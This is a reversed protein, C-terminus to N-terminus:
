ESFGYDAPNYENELGNQECYETVKKRIAPEKLRIRLEEICAQVRGDSEAIPQYGYRYIFRGGKREFHPSDAKIPMIIMNVRYKTNFLFEDIEEFDRMSRREQTYEKKLECILHNPKEKFYVYKGYGADFVANMVRM